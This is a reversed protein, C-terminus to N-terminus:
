NHSRQLAEAMNRQMNMLIAVPAAERKEFDAQHKEFDARHGAITERLQDIQRQQPILAPPLDDQSVTLYFKHTLEIIPRAIADMVKQLGARDGSNDQTMLGHLLYENRFSATDADGEFRSLQSYLRAM